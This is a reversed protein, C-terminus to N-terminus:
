QFWALRPRKECPTSAQHDSQVSGNSASQVPATLGSGSDALESQLDLVAGACVCPGPSARVWFQENVAGEPQYAWRALDASARKARPELTNVWEQIVDVDYEALGLDLAPVAEWVVATHCESYNGLVHTAEVFAPGPPLPVEPQRYNLLQFYEATWDPPMASGDAHVRSFVEPRPTGPLFRITNGLQDQCFIAEVKEGLLSLPNAEMSEVPEAPLEIRHGVGLDFLATRMFNGDASEAARVYTCNLAPGRGINTIAVDRVV